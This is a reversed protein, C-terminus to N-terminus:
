YFLCIVAAMCALLAISDAALALWSFVSYDLKDGFLNDREAFVWPWGYQVVMPPERWNWAVRNREGLSLNKSVPSLLLKGSLCIMPLLLIVPAIYRRLRSM